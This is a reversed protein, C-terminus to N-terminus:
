QFDQFTFTPAEVSNTPNSDTANDKPWFPRGNSDLCPKNAKMRKRCEEQRHNQMKCFICTQGNRNFNNGQNNQRWSLKQPRQQNNPATQSPYRGLSQRQYNFNQCLADIETDKSDQSSIETAFIKNRTKAEERSRQEITALKVVHNLRLEDQNQLNLVKRLESPLGARFHYVM